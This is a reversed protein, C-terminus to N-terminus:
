DSLCQILEKLSEIEKIFYKQKNFNSQIIESPAKEIFSKNELKSEIKNLNNILNDLNKELRKKETDIDIIKKIPIFLKM